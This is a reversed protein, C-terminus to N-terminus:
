PLLQELLIMRTTLRDTTARTHLILELIAERVAVPSPPLARFFDNRKLLKSHLLTLRSLVEHLAADYQVQLEVRQREEAEEEKLLRELERLTEPSWAAPRDEPEM